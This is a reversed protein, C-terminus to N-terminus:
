RGGAKESKERHRGEEGLIHVYVDELTVQVGDAAGTDWVIARDPVLIGSQPSLPFTSLTRSELAAALWQQRRGWGKLFLTSSSISSLVQPM